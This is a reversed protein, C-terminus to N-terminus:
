GPKICRLCSRGLAMQSAERNAIGQRRMVWVVHQIPYVDLIFLLKSEIEGLVQGPATRHRAKRLAEQHRDNQSTFVVRAKGNEGDLVAFRPCYM